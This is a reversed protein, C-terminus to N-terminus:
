KMTDLIKVLDTFETRPNVIAFRTNPRGLHSSPVVFALQSELLAESWQKYQTIDWGRREFVVVSLVPQRLLQLYDRQEIVDAIQRALNISRAIAQRYVAIGHTALSFWLPLGRVRRTLNFAYDSPNWEGDGHVVDLYDAQQTHASKAHMPNRYVLACADFPAFLWKHPDVIFSDCNEIGQYLSKHETSLIGALGYAGDVHFWLNEKGAVGSLEDMRDVIGFNTTGATGVLAFPTLGSLRAAAIAKDAANATFKGDPTPEAIILEVDMVRATAALSSHAEASCVVAWPGTRGSAKAWQRASVLASLNGLTGGQVFVGGAGDPLGCERALFELVQNEAFIAGAGEKWSGGYISSASVVLDFLSAAETPAAPIFSLFNPHDASVTAPALIDRFIALAQQGGIGADTLTQGTLEKLTELSEPRDLPVPDYDMRAVSYELVAQRLALTEASIRHM